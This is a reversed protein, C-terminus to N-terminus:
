AITPLTLHTYSVPNYLTILIKQIPEKSAILGKLVKLSQAIDKKGLSDTLDFIIAQIQKTSLLNIERSTITGNEGAYEILKRIENIEM